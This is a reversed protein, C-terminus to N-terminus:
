ANKDNVGGHSSQHPHPNVGSHQHHHGHGMGHQHPHAHVHDELSPAVLPLDMTPDADEIRWEIGQLNHTRLVTEMVNEAIVVPVYVTFGEVKVPWHQNGLMHGLKVTLETLSQSDPQPFIKIVLVKRGEVEVMILHKQDQDVYLIDGHRLMEGRNLTIGVETGKDTDKRLRSKQAEWTDVSLREVRGDQEWAAVFTALDKDTTINGIVHDVVIM